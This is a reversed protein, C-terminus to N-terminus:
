RVRLRKRTITLAIALGVILLLVFGFLMWAQLNLYVLIKFEKEVYNGAQDTVVVRYDGSDVVQSNMNLKKVEDGSIVSVTDGEELGTVTVPGKARNNEDLGEFTVQPPTHDITVNLYYSIGNDSSVYNVDYNGEQTMDVVGYDSVADEGNIVVSRVSFGKPLNYQNVAGTIKNLIRFGMIQGTSGDEGSTIAYSGPANIVQPFGDVLEGDKYLLVNVDEGKALTVDGTVMMGDAVSISVSGNDVSYIYMGTPRDYISGDTMTVRQAQDQESDESIPSRTFIDIPGDYGMDAEATSQETSEVGGDTNGAASSDAAGENIESSGNGETANLEAAFVTGIGKAAAGSIDTSQMEEDDTVSTSERSYDGSVDAQYDYMSVGSYNGGTGMGITAIGAILLTGICITSYKLTSKKMSRLRMSGM